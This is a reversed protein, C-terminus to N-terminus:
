SAIWGSERRLAWREKVHSLQPAAAALSIGRGAKSEFCARSKALRVAVWGFISPALTVFRATYRQSYVVISTVYNLKIIIVCVGQYRTANTPPALALAFVEVSINARRRKVSKFHNQESQLFCVARSCKCNRSNINKLNSVSVHKFYM